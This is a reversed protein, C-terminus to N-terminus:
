ADSSAILATRHRCGVPAGSEDRCKGVVDVRNEDRLEDVHSVQGPEGPGVCGGDHRAAAVGHERGIAAVSVLGRLLRWIYPQDYSAVKRGIEHRCGSAAARTAKRDLPM